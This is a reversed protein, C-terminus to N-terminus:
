LARVSGFFSLSTVNQVRGVERRSPARASPEGQAKIWPQQATAVLESMSVWCGCWQMAVSPISSESPLQTPATCRVNGSPILIGFTPTCWTTAAPISKKGPPVSRGHCPFEQGPQAAKQCQQSARKGTPIRKASTPHDKQPPSAQKKGLHSAREMALASKGLSSQREGASISKQQNPHKKGLHSARETGPNPPVNARANHEADPM